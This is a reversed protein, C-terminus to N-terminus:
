CKMIVLLNQDVIMIMVLLEFTVKSLLVYLTVTNVPVEMQTQTYKMRARYNM